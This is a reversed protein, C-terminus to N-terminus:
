SKNETDRVVSVQEVDSDLRHTYILQPGGVAIRLFHVRFALWGFLRMQVIAHPNNGEFYIGHFPEYKNSSLRDVKIAKTTSDMEQLARRIESLSEAEDYIAAGIHCALFEFAIKAPVLDNMVVARSLDIEIRDTRWKVVDISPAIEFRTNEPANRLAGVAQQIPSEGHGLKRLMVQISREADDTPQMISGDPLSHARARFEGDRIYGRVAGFESHGIHPHCEILQKSLLPIQASLRQAALLVAPDSKAAAELEHGLKSNCPRCLFDSALRGGLAQPIIHEECLPAKALCVICRDESWPVKM